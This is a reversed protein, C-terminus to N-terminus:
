WLCLTNQSYVKSVVQLIVFSYWIFNFQPSLGHCLVLGLKFISAAWCFMFSHIIHPRSITCYMRCNYHQMTIALQLTFFITECPGSKLVSYAEMGESLSQINYLIHAKTAFHLWHVHICVCTRGWPIPVSHVQAYLKRFKVDLVLHEQWLKHGSRTTIKWM